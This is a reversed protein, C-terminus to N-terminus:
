KLNHQQRFSVAAQDYSYVFPTVGYLLESRRNVHEVLEGIPVTEPNRYRPDTKFKEIISNIEDVADRNQENVVNNYKAEPYREQYLKFDKTLFLAALYNRAESEKEKSILQLEMILAIFENAFDVSMGTEPYVQPVEEKRQPEFMQSDKM